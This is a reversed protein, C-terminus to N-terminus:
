WHQTELDKTLANEALPLCIKLLPGFRRDLFGTSQIIKSIHTKSLKINIPSNRVFAKDTSLLKLPFSIENDTGTM